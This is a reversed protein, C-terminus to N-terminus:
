CWATSFWKPSHSFMSVTPTPPQTDSGGAVTSPLSFSSTVHRRSEGVHLQEEQPHKRLPELQSPMLDFAREAALMQEKGTSRMVVPRGPVARLMAAPMLRSDLIQWFPDALAVRCNQCYYHDPMAAADIGVCNCHQWVGCADDQLGVTHRTFPKVFCMSGLIVAPVQLKNALLVTLCHPAVPEQLQGCKKSM